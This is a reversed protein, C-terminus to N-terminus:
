KIFRGAVAIAAAMILIIAGGIWMRGQLNSKFDELDKLRTSAAEHRQDNAQLLRSREVAMETIRRDLDTVAGKTQVEVGETVDVRTELAGHKMEYYERPLYTAQMQRLRESEGNLEDLRRRFEDAALVLARDHADMKEQLRAIAVELSDEV